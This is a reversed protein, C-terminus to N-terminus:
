YPNHKVLTLARKLDFPSAQRYLWPRGVWVYGDCHKLAMADVASSLGWRPRAVSATPPIGLAVCPDHVTASCVRANNPDPGPYTGFRFPRGNAATNVVFHRGPIGHRALARVVATGFRVEDATSDYHTSALAFGRVGPVGIGAPLLVKLARAPQDWDWDAAGGDIYVHTHPQAAFHRAAYRVLHAPLHSGHPACLAFPGDPQLVLAVHAKGIAHAARRIWTKYSAVERDTPLRTCAEHEWPVVRFVAMQVLVSRDGGTANAIYAKVREAILDDPIWAGFWQVKPAQVIPDLLKQKTRSAAEYAVWAEDAPGRYTGWRHQALPNHPNAVATARPAPRPAAHAGTLAGGLALTLAVGTLFALLPTRSM